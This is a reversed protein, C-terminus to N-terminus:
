MNHGTLRLEENNQIKKGKYKENERNRGRKKGKRDEKEKVNEGKERGRKL